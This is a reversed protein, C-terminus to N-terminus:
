EEEEEMFEKRLIIALMSCSCLYENGAHQGKIHAVGDVVELVDYVDIDPDIFEASPLIQVWDGPMPLRDM